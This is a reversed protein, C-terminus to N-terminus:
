QPAEALTVLGWTWAVGGRSDRIVAVVKSQAGPFKKTIAPRWDTTTADELKTKGAIFGTREDETTGSDVFWSIFL